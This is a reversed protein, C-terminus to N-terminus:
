KTVNSYYLLISLIFNTVDVYEIQLEPSFNKFNNSNWM